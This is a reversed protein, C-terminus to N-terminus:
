DGVLGLNGNLRNNEEENQEGWTEPPINFRTALSSMKLALCRVSKSSIKIVKNVAICLDKNEVLENELSSVGQFTLKNRLALATFYQMALAQHIVVSGAYQGSLKAEIPIERKGVADGELARIFEALQGEEEIFATVVNSIIEDIPITSAEIGLLEAIWGVGFLTIALNHRARDKMTPNNERINADIAKIAAHVEAVNWSAALTWLVGTCRQYVEEDSPLSYFADRAGPFNVIHRSSVTLPLSRERAGKDSIRSEGSLIIPARLVYNTISQDSNGRPEEACNFAQRMFHHLTNLHNESIDKTRYEDLWTPFTSTVALERIFSFPPRRASGIRDHGMFLMSFKELLSTKGSGPVGYLNLHPFGGWLERMMETRLAASFWGLITWVVIPDGCKLLGVVVSKLEELTGGALAKINLVNGAVNAMRFSTQPDEVAGNVGWVGKPYVLEGNHWGTIDTTYRVPLTANVDNAAIQNLLYKQVRELAEKDKAHLGFNTLGQFKKVDYLYEAPFAKKTWKGDVPFTIEYTLYPQEMGRKTVDEMKRTISVPGCIHAYVAQGTEEDMGRFMHLGNIDARYETPVLLTDTVPVSPWVSKVTMATIEPNSVTNSVKWDWAAEKIIAMLIKAKVPGRGGPYAYVFDNVKNKVEAM